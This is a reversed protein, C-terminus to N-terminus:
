SLKGKLSGRRTALIDAHVGPAGSVWRPKLPSIHSAAEGDGDESREASSHNRVSETGYIEQM